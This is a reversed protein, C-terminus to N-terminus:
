SSGKRLLDPQILDLEISVALPVKKYNCHRIKHCILANCRLVPCILEQLSQLCTVQVWDGLCPVPLPAKSDEVSELYM